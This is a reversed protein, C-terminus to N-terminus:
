KEGAIKRQSRGSCYPMTYPPPLQGCVHALEPLCRSIIRIGNATQLLGTAMDDDLRNCLEMLSPCQRGPHPRPERFQHYRATRPKTPRHLAGKATSLTCRSKVARM